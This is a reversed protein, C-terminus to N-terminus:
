AMQELVVNERRLVDIQDDLAGLIGAIRKQVDLPPLPITFNKLPAIFLCQQVAGDALFKNYVLTYYLFKSTIKELNPKFIAVSRQFEYDPNEDKILAAEGITGVSSLIIDGQALQTRKRLKVLTQRSIKRDNKGIVITGNKINKCSLLFCTGKDDDIVTNHVGDTIKICADNLKVENWKIM